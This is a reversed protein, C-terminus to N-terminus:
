DCRQVAHEALSDEFAEWCLESGVLRLKDVCSLSPRILSRLANQTGRLLGVPIQSVFPSHLRFPEAAHPTLNGGSAKRRRKKQNVKERM